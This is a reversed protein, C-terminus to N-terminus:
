ALYFGGSWTIAKVMDQQFKDPDTIGRKLELSMACTHAVPLQNNECSIFDVELEKPFGLPPVARAGTWFALVDELSAGSTQGIFCVM